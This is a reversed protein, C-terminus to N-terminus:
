FEKKNCIHISIKVSVIIFIIYIIPLMHQYKKLLALYDINIELQEIIYYLFVPIYFVGLMLFRSKNTGYKFTLPIIVLTYLVTAMLGGLIIEVPLESQLTKSLCTGIYLGAYSVGICLFSLTYKCIAIRNRPIPLVIAYQNWHNKEDYAMAQLTIMIGFLATYITLFAKVNIFSSIIIGIMLIGFYLQITRKSELIDKLVIGRM